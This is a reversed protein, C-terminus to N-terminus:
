ELSSSLQLNSSFTLLFSGVEAMRPFVSTGLRPLGVWSANGLGQKRHCGSCLVTARSGGRWQLVPKTHVGRLFVQGEAGASLGVEMRGGFVIALMQEARHQVCVMM